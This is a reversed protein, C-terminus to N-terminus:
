SRHLHKQHQHWAPFSCCSKFETHVLTPRLSKRLRHLGCFSVACATDTFYWAAFKQPHGIFLSVLSNHDAYGHWHSFLFHELFAFEHSLSSWWFYASVRVRVCVCVCVCMTDTWIGLWRFLTARSFRLGEQLPVCATMLRVAISGERLVHVIKRCAFPLDFHSFVLM